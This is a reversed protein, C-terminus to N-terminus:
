LDHGAKYGLVFVGGCIAGFLIAVWLPMTVGTM